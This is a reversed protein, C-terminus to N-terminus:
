GVLASNNKPDAYRLFYWQSGAWGPMTNTERVVKADAPLDVVGAEGASTHVWEQVKALLPRPDDSEVPEYDSLEPLVVPLKSADVPYHNGESDYVIPFPEGWYRQ